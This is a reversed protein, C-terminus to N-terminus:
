SGPPLVIRFPSESPTESGVFEITSGIEYIEIFPSGVGGAVWLEVGDSTVAMDRPPGSISFSDFSLLGDSGLSEYVEVGPSSGSVTLFVLGSASAFREPRGATVPIREVEFGDSVQIVWIYDDAAVFARFDDVPDLIIHGYGDGPTGLITDVEILSLLDVLSVSADGSNVVYLDNGDPAVVLDTPADGVAILERVEIEVLDVLIVEDTSVSTIYAESGDPSIAVAAPERAGLALTTVVSRSGTDIITADGSGANVVVARSGDPTIAMDVPNSGVEITSLTEGTFANLALVVGPSRNVVVWALDVPAVPPDVQVRAARTATEGGSSVEVTFLYSGTELPVGSLVGGSDFTLGPPLSGSAIRWSYDGDGGRATFAFSYVQGVEADPPFAPIVELAEVVEISLEATAVLGASEVEVTFSQLGTPGSPVGSVLGDSSLTLGEPLLSDLLRWTYSGDGGSATLRVEYPEGFVADPLGDVTIVPPDLDDVVLELTRSATGGASSVQVTFAFTGGETPTGALSGDAALSVGAPLSGSVVSWLYNGDGGTAALLTSYPEDVRGEPLSTTTIAVGELITVDVSASSTQGSSDTVRATIVREGAGVSTEVLPGGLDLQSGDVFWVIDDSIDGDPKDLAVGQLVLRVGEIGVGGPPPSLIQVTPPDDVLTIPVTPEVPLGPALEFSTTGEFLPDGDATLEVELVAPGASFGDDLELEAVLGGSVPILPVSGDFIVTSGQRLVIGAGNLRDFAEQLGPQSAPDTAQFAMTVAAGRSGDAPEFFFGDCGQLVAAMVLLGLGMWRRVAGGRSPLRMTQRM